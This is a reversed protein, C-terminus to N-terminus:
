QASRGQHPLPDPLSIASWNSPWVNRRLNGVENRAPRGPWSHCRLPPKQKAEVPRISAPRDAAQPAPVFLRRHTKQSFSGRPATPAFLSKGRPPAFIQGHRLGAVLNGNLIFGEARLISNIGRTPPFVQDVQVGLRGYRRSQHGAVAHGQARIQINGCKGAALGRGRNFHAFARFAKRDGSQRVSSKVSMGGCLQQSRRRAQIPRNTGCACVVACGVRAQHM